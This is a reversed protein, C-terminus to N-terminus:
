EWRAAARRLRDMIAEGLGERVCTDCRIEGLGMGDLKRLAAFLGRAVEELDGDRSLTEVVRYRGAEEAPLERFAIRGVGADPERLGADNGPGSGRLLVLKTAPAYHERLLGPSLMGDGQQDQGARAGAGGFPGTEGISGAEGGPEHGSGRGLSEASVGLREALERATISGPRLVRPREGLMVITSEVGHRCPGGDLVMAVRDGLGSADCVHQALTPSIYGSRNASPAALPFPCQALLRRAVPHAPIRVAVTDRGATVEDPVKAGRPCVVTLPGPWFDRLRELQGAILGSPPWAIAEGLRDYGAVHVILPNTSPRGKAAFIGRVAAADWANAALGYVTETPMGILKGEALLGVARRISEDTPPFILDDPHPISPM